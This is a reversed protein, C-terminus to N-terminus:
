NGAQTRLQALEAELAEIQILAARYRQDDNLRALCQEALATAEALQARDQQRAAQLAANARVLEAPAAAPVGANAAPCRQGALRSREAALFAVQEQALALRAGLDAVAAADKPDAQQQALRDREAALAAARDQERGLAAQAKALQAATAQRERTLAEVQRQAAALGLRLEATSPAPPESPAGGAGQLVVIRRLTVEAEQRLDALAQRDLAGAEQASPGVTSQGFKAVRERLQQLTARLKDLDPQLSPQGPPVAPPAAQALALGPALALGLLLVGLGRWRGRRARATTWFLHPKLSM